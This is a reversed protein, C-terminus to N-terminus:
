EVSNDSRDLLSKIVANHELRKPQRLLFSYIESNQSKALALVTASNEAGFCRSLFKVIILNNGKVAHYMATRDQDDKTFFNAGRRILEYCHEFSGRRCAIMLATMSDSKTKVDIYTGLGLLWILRELSGYKTAYHISAYGEYNKPSDCENVNCNWGVLIECIHQRMQNDTISFSPEDGSDAKCSRRFITQFPTSGEKVREINAGHSLAKEVEIPKLSNIAEFLKEDYVVDRSESTLNRKVRTIFYSFKAKNRANVELLKTVRLRRTRKGGDYNSKFDKLANRVKVSNTKSKADRWAAKPQSQQRSQRRSFSSDLRDALQNKVSLQSEDPILSTNQENGFVKMPTHEQVIEDHLALNKHLASLFKIEDRIQHPNTIVKRDFDTPVEDHGENELDRELRLYAKGYVRTELILETPISSVDFHTVNHNRNCKDDFQLEAKEAKSTNLENSLQKGYFSANFQSKPLNGNRELLVSPAIAPM